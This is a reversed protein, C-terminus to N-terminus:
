ATAITPLVDVYAITYPAEGNGPASNITYETARFVDDESNLGAPQGTCGPYSVKEYGTIDSGAMQASYADLKFKVPTYEEGSAPPTYGTIKQTEADKTLFGGQLIEILELITLNDTLTITHGTLTQKEPKQAKLTGKIMLKVADTTEMQPEVSLKTGSTIGICRPSEEETTVVIMCCDITAKETGRKPTAEAM